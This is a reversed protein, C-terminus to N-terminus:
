HLLWGGEAYITQGTLYSANDSALFLVADAVEDTTGRRGLPVTANYAEEVGPKAYAAANLPTPISGPGVANARIGYPGGELAFTETITKVATKAVNYAACNPRVRAANMSAINVISGPKDAERCLRAFRQSAFFVSKVDVNMVTDWQEETEDFIGGASWIGANNVLIDPAGFTEVTAAFIRDLGEPTSVDAACYLFRTMDGGAVEELLQAGKEQRRACFVVNAGAEYFREAIRRGIGSGSGTVIATKGAFDFMSM